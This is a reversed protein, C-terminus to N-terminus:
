GSPLSMVAITRHRSSTRQLSGTVPQPGSRQTLYIIVMDFRHGGWDALLSDPQSKIVEVFVGGGVGCGVRDTGHDVHM